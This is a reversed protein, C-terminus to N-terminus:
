PRTGGGTQPPDPQSVGGTNEILNGALLFEFLQEPSVAWSTEMNDVLYFDLEPHEGAYTDEIAESFGRGALMIEDTTVDGSASASGSATQIAGTVSTSHIWGVQNSSTSIKFWEGNIEDITAITGYNVPEVPSAYFAPMPYISQNQVAIAVEDGVQPVADEAIALSLSFLLLIILSRM